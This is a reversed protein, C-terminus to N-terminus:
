SEQPAYADCSYCKTHYVEHALKACDFIEVEGCCSKRKRRKTPGRHQCVQSSRLAIAEERRLRRNRHAAARKGRETGAVQARIKALAKERCSGCGPLDAASSRFAM